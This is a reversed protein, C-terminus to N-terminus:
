SVAGLDAAGAQVKEVLKPRMGCVSTCRVAVGVRGQNLGYEAFCLFGQFSKKAHIVEM